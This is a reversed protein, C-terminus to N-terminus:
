TRRSFWVNRVPPGYIMLERGDIDAVFNSSNGWSGHGSVTFYIRNGEQQFSGRFVNGREQWTVRDREAFSVTFSGCESDFIGLIDYSRATVSIIVITLLIIAFAFTCYLIKKNPMRSAPTVPRTDDPVVKAIKVAPPTEVKPADPKVTEM